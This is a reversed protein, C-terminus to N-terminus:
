KSWEAISEKNMKVYDANGEKTASELSKKAIKIASKKDGTAAHALSQQRLQWFPPNDNMSIAKDLWEKAQKADKGSSLYYVGAQYYDGSSPGGLTNEISALTIKETPVGLTLKVKTKAWAIYFNASTGTVDSIGITFSQKDSSLAHTTATTKLAVKKDDLEAPAGGGAYDTYFIIEWSNKNPISFIAYTGAKLEKGDITVDTSFTVKTRGNAGTRWIKEFPVLDGFITRGRMAPRSYEVAVNTLGVAQTFTASPSPAPTQIQAQITTTVLVFLISLIKIKM